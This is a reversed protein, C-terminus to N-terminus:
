PVLEFWAVSDTVTPAGAAGVAFASLVLVIPVVGASSVGTPFSVAPPLPAVNTGLVISRSGVVDPWCVLKLTAPSPTQVSLVVVPCTANKGSTPKVPIDLM